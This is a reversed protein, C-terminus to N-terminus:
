KRGLYYIYDQTFRASTLTQFVELEDAEPGLSKSEMLKNVWTRSDGAFDDLMCGLIHQNEIPKKFAPPISQHESKIFMAILIWATNTEVNHYIKRTDTPDPLKNCPIYQYPIGRRIKGKPEKRLQIKGLIRAVLFMYQELPSLNEILGDMEAM